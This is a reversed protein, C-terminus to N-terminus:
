QSIILVLILKPKKARLSTNLPPIRQSKEIIRLKDSNSNWNTKAKSNNFSLEKGQNIFNNKKDKCM